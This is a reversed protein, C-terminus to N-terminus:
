RCGRLLTFESLIPVMRSEVALSTALPSDTRSRSFPETMASSTVARSDTMMARLLRYRMALTRRSVSLWTLSIMGPREPGVM